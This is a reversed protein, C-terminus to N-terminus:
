FSALTLTNSRSCRGEVGSAMKQNCIWQKERTNLPLIWISIPRCSIKEREKSWKPFSESDTTVWRSVPKTRVSRESSLQRNLIQISSTRVLFGNSKLSNMKNRTNQRKICKEYWRRQQANLKEQNKNMIKSDRRATKWKEMNWSSEMLAVLNHKKAFEYVKSVNKLKNLRSIQMVYRMCIEKLIKLDFRHALEYLDCCANTKMRPPLVVGEYIFKLLLTVIKPDYDINLMKGTALNAKLVDSANALICKHVKFTEGRANITFDSYSDHQLLHGLPKSKLSKLMKVADDFRNAFSGVFKFTLKCKLLLLNNGNTFTHSKYDVNYEEPDEPMSSTKIYGQNINVVHYEFFEYFSSNKRMETVDISVTFLNSAYIAEDHFKLHVTIEPAGDGLFRGNPQVDLHRFTWNKWCSIM